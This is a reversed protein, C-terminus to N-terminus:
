SDKKKQTTVANHRLAFLELNLDNEKNEFTKARPRIQKTESFFFSNVSDTM